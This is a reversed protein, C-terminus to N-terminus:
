TEASSANEKWTTAFAGSGSVTLWGQAAEFDRQKQILVHNGTSFKVTANTSKSDPHEIRIAVGDREAQVPEAPDDNMAYFYAGDQACWDIMRKPQMAHVATKDTSSLDTHLGEQAHLVATLGVLVPLLSKM